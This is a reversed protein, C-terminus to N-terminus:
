LLFNCLLVLFLLLHLNNADFVVYCAEDFWDIGSFPFHFSPLMGLDVFVSSLEFHRM